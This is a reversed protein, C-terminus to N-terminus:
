APQFCWTNHSTRVSFGHKVRLHHVLCLKIQWCYLKNARKEICLATEGGGGGQPSGQLNSVEKWEQDNEIYLAVVTPNAM